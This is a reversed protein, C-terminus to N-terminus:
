LSFFLPPPPMALTISYLLFPFLFFGHVQSFSLFVVSALCRSGGGWGGRVPSLAAPLVRLNVHESRIDSWRCFLPPPPPLSNGKEAFYLMITLGHGCFTTFGSGVLMLLGRAVWEWPTLLAVTHTHPPSEQAENDNVAKVGPTPIESGAVAAVSWGSEVFM